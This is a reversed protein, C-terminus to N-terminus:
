VAVSRSSSAPIYSTQEGPLAVSTRLDAASLGLFDILIAAQAHAARSHGTDVSRFLLQSARWGLKRLQAAQLDDLVVRGVLATPYGDFAFGVSEVTVPDLAESIDLGEGERPVVSWEVTRVFREVRTPDEDRDVRMFAIDFTPM